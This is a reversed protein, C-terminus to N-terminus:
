FTLFRTQRTQSSARLAASTSHYKILNIHYLKKKTLRVLDEASADSDNIGDILLYEFMVKRNTKEIYHDM